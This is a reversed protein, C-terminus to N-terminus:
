AKTKAYCCADKLVSRVNEERESEWVFVGSDVRVVRCGAFEFRALSRVCSSGDDCRRVNTATTTAEAAAGEEPNAPWNIKQLM